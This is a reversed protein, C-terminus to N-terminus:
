NEKISVEPDSEKTQNSHDSGQNERADRIIEKLIGFSTRIRTYDGLALTADPSPDDLFAQIADRLRKLESESLESGEGVEGKLFAIEQKM